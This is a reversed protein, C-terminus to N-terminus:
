ALRPHGEEIKTHQDWFGLNLQVFRVGSEVARRATLCARGLERAFVAHGNRGLAQGHQARHRASRVGIRVHNGLVNAGIEAGDRWLRNVVGESGQRLLAKDPADLGGSRRGKVFIPDAVVVMM